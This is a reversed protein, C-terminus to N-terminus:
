LNQTNTNLSRPEMNLTQLHAPSSQFRTGEATKYCDVAILVPVEGGCGYRVIPILVLYCGPLGAVPCCCCCGCCGGCCSDAATGHNESIM